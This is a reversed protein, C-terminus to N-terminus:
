YTQWINTLSFYQNLDHEKAYMRITYNYGKLEKIINEAKRALKLYAAYQKKTETLEQIDRSLHNKQCEIVAVAKEAELRDGTNWQWCTPDVEKKKGTISNYGHSWDARIMVNPRFESNYGWIELDFSYASFSNNFGTSDKVADHFRKNLVKGDFKRCVETLGDLAKIERRRREILADVHKCYERVENAKKKRELKQAAAMFDAETGISYADEKNGKERSLQHRLEIYKQADEKTLFQRVGDISENKWIWVNGNRNILKKAEAFIQYM